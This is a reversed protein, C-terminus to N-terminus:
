RRVFNELAWTRQESAHHYTKLGAQYWTHRVDRGIRQLLAEKRAIHSWQNMDCRLAVPVHHFLMARGDDAASRLPISSCEPDCPIVM